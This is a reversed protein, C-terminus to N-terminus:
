AISGLSTTSIRAPFLSGTPQSVGSLIKILSSSDTGHYSTGIKRVQAIQSNVAKFLGVPMASQKEILACHVREPDPFQWEFPLWSIWISLQGVYTSFINEV